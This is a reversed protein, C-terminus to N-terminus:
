VTRHRRALGAVWGIMAGLLWVVWHYPAMLFSAAGGVVAGFVIHQITGDLWAAPVLSAALWVVAAIWIPLGILALCSVHLDDFWILLWYGGVVAILTAARICWDRGYAHWFDRLRGAM